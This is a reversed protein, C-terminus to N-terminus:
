DERVGALERVKAPMGEANLEWGEGSLDVGTQIQTFKVEEATSTVLSFGGFEPKVGIVADWTVAGTSAGSFMSQRSWLLRESTLLLAASRFLESNRACRCLWLLRETGNVLALLEKKQDDYFGNEFPARGLKARKRQLAFAADDRLDAPVKADDDEALRTIAARRLEEATELGPQLELAREASRQAGDWDEAALLASARGVHADVLRPAHAIAEDFAPVAAEPKAEALAAYGRWTHIIALMGNGGAVAAFDPDVEFAKDIEKLGEDTLEAAVMAGGSMAHPLGSRPLLRRAEEADRLADDFRERGINVLVRFLRAIAHEPELDLARDLETAADELRLQSLRAIGLAARADPSRPDLELARDVDALAADVDDEGLLAYTRAIHADPLNPVLALARDLDAIAGRNDDLGALALARSVFAEAFDPDAALAEDFARLAARTDDSRITALLALGRAVHAPASRPDLALARDADARAEDLRYRRTRVRARGVLASVADPERTFVKAFAEEAEGLRHLRLLAWGTGTLAPVSGPEVALVREFHTLAAGPRCERLAAEGRQLADGHVTAPPTRAAPPPADGAQPPMPVAPRVRRGALAGSAAASVARSDDEALERLAAEARRTMAAEGGHALRALEAVAALRDHLLHSEIGARVADPLEALAQASRALVVVGRKDNKILPTQHPTVLRVGDYVYDYLEDLTVHGDGNIDAAGTRLGEVLVRTFVSGAEEVLHDGHEGEFAYELASSATIVVRGDGAFRGTVDVQPGSKAVLGRGFAGSHCCDLLVVISRARCDDMVDLVFSSPIGTSHLRKFRTNSAAFHLQRNQTLLGHCSVYLLLLDTSRAEHFFDEIALRIADTPQNVVPESVEFAGIAPDGLVEALAAVDGGPARLAQLSPDAYESTAVLLAKRRGEM